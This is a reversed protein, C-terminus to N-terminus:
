LCFINRCCAYSYFISPIQHFILSLYQERRRRGFHLGSDSHSLGKHFSQFVYYGEEEPHQKFSVPTRNEFASTFKRISYLAHLFKRM